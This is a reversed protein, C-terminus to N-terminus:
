KSAKNNNTQSIHFMDQYDFVLNCFAVVGTKFGKEDIFM